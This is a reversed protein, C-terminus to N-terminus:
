GRVIVTAHFALETDCTMSGGPTKTSSAGGTSIGRACAPRASTIVATGAHAAVFYGGTVGLQLTLRGSAHPVLVSPTAHIPAWMRAPTGRLVVTVSTGQKVCFAKGNDSASVTVTHGAATSTSGHCAGSGGAGASGSSAAGSGGSGARQQGCASTVAAVAIIMVAALSSAKLV